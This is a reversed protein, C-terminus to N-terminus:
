LGAARAAELRIKKLRPDENPDDVIPLPKWAPKSSDTGDSTVVQPTLKAATPAPSQQPLVLPLETSSKTSASQIPYASSGPTLTGFAYDCIGEYIGRVIKEQGEATRIYKLDKPSSLFGCEVLVAPMKAERLVVFRARRLGRDEFKTSKLLRRQIAFGLQMNRIDNANGNQLTNAQSKASPSPNVASTSLMGRAPFIYTEFGNAAVSPNANFHISIFVDAKWRHAKLPREELVQTLTNDSRSIMVDFGANKLYKALKQAIDLTLRSELTKRDKSVAGSDAGGHGPDIFVRFPRGTVLASTHATLLPSLMYKFDAPSAKPNKTEKDLTAPQSLYVLVNDFKARQSGQEFSFKWPKLVSPPPLAEVPKGDTPKTKQTSTVEPPPTDGIPSAPSEVIETQNTNIEVDSVLNTSAHDEDPEVLAKNSACSSTIFSVASCILALFCSKFFTKM